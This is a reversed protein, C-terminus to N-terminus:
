DAFNCQFRSGIRILSSIRMAVQQKKCLTLAHRPIARLTYRRRIRVTMGVIHNSADIIRKKRHKQWRKCENYENAFATIGSCLLHYGEGNRM